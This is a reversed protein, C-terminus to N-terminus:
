NLHYDKRILEILEEASTKLKTKFQILGLISSKMYQVWGSLDALLSPDQTRLPPNGTPPQIEDRNSVMQNFMVPDFVKVALSRYEHEENKEIEQLMELLKIQRYYEMIKNAVEQKRVLRFGGSNRMQDITRDNYNFIDNRSTIRGYYYIRNLNETIIKNNLLFILSDMFVVNHHNRTIQRDLILLDEKLDDTLSRMFQKERQHEIYHERQNEVLFGLTVALFLMLFEWFYHTWKKKSHHGDHDSSHTHHHVEM